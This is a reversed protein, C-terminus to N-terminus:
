ILSMTGFAQAASLLFVADLAALRSAIHAVRTKLYVACEDSHVFLAKLPERM